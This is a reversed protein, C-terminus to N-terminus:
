VSGDSLGLNNWISNLTINQMQLLKNSDVGSIESVQKVLDILQLMPNQEKNQVYYQTMDTEFLIKGYSLMEELLLHKDQKLLRSSVTFACDLKCFSRFSEVSGAFGHILYKLLYQNMIDFATQTHGVIHLVAPLKYKEAINLQEIFMKAQWALDPNGRDFGIEGVAIIDGSKALIDIDDLEIDCEDFSPHIGAHWFVNNLQNSKHWEIETKTLANSIFCNIGHEQADNIFAIANFARALNALHCHADIYTM